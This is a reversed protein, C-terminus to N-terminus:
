NIEPFYHSLVQYETINLLKSIEATMLLIRSILEFKTQGELKEIMNIDKGTVINIQKDNKSM